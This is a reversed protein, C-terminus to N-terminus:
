HDPWTAWRFGWLILSLRKEYTNFQLRKELANKIKDSIYNEVSSIEHGDLVHICSFKEEILPNVFCPWNEQPGKLSCWEGPPLSKISDDLDSAKLEKQHSRLKNIGSKNLTLSRM